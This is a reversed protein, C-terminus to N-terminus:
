RDIKAMYEEIDPEEEELDEEAEERAVLEMLDPQLPSGLVELPNSRM